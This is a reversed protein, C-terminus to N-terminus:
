KKNFEPCEWVPTVMDHDVCFEYLKSAIKCNNKRDEPKFKDCSYCMCYKSHKGKLDSRVFVKAGHHEYNEYNM